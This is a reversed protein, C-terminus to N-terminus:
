SFMVPLWRLTQSGPPNYYHLVESCTNLGATAMEFCLLPLVSRNSATPGVNASSDAVPSRFRPPSCCRVRACELRDAPSSRHKSRIQKRNKGDAYNMKMEQTPEHGIQQSVTM